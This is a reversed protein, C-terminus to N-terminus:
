RRRLSTLPSASRAADRLASEDQLVYRMTTRYDAHGMLRQLQHPQIRRAALTAFARRLDHPRFTHTLGARTCLEALWQRIASTTIRQGLRDLFFAPELEDSSFRMARRRREAPLTTSGSLPADLIADDAEQPMLESFRRFLFQRRPRRLWDELAARCEREPYVFRGHGAKSNRIRIAGTPRDYDGVDLNVVESVRLGCDLMLLLMARARRAYASDYGREVGYRPRQPREVAALLRQLEEQQVHVQEKRPVRPMLDKASRFPNPGALLEESELWTVFGRVASMCSAQSSPSLPKGRRQPAVTTNVTRGRLYVAFGRLTRKDLNEISPEPGGESRLFDLLLATAWRYQELTRETRGQNARAALWEEIAEPLAMTLAPLRAM